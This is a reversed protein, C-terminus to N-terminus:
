RSVHGLNDSESSNYSGGGRVCRTGGELRAKARTGAADAHLHVLGALRWNDSDEIMTAALAAAGVLLVLTGLGVGLIVFHADLHLQGLDSTRIRVSNKLLRERNEREVGLKRRRLLHTITTILQYGSDQHHLSEVCSSVGSRTYIIFTKKIDVQLFEHIFHFPKYPHKM